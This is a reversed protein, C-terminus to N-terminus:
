NIRFELITIESSNLFRNPPGWFGTGKSVYLYSDQEFYAGKAYKFLSNIFLSWPWAQGAHTHGSLQLLVRTKEWVNPRHALLINISNEDQHLYEMLEPNKGDDIGYIHIHSQKFNFQSEEQHLTKVGQLRLLNIWENLDYYTEHNGTVFYVPFKETLQKLM